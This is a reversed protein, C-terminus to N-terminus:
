IGRRRRASARCPRSCASARHPNSPTASGQAPAAHLARLPLPPQSHIPPFAPAPPIHPRSPTHSNSPVRYPVVHTLCRVRCTSVSTPSFDQVRLALLAGSHNTPTTHLTQLRGRSNSRTRGHSVYRGEPLEGVSLSGSGHDVQDEEEDLSVRGWGDSAGVAFASHRPPRASLQPRDSRNVGSQVMGRLMQPTAPTHRPLLGWVAYAAQYPM